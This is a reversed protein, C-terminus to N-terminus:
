FDTGSMEIKQGQPALRMALESFSSWTSGLLHPARGLLIADALGYLLQETSRDYRSRELWALRDGYHQRFVDYTEPLDAALFLTQAGGTALLVDIRTLFHAYHSKARWHAIAAHDEPLWNDAREYPLHEHAAGGQMRVHVAVDRPHRVSAVMARVREVPVLAKLAVNESDWTSAPHKVVFASRLYLDRGPALLVPADKVGGPEAAMYNVVELGRARADDLFREEIVAGPYDFLDNFRCDCHEDPQWVVVLERGAARAVAAASGIARLRNGLGHQADVFIRARPRQVIPTAAAARALGETSLTLLGDRGEAVHGSVLAEASVPDLNGLAEWTPVVPLELAGPSAGAPLDTRELRLVPALGLGRARAALRELGGWAGRAAIDSLLPTDLGIVLYHGSGAIVKGPASRAIEVDIASVDTDPRELVADLGARDLALVNRGLRWSLLERWAQQNAAEIMHGPVASPVWGERRLVLGFPARAEINFPLPISGHDWDPMSAAIFRNRRILFQTEGALRDRATIAGGGTGGDGLREADSHPLHHITGPAVNLRRVGAIVLRAYLDDDDWGYTTIHENFGGVKALSAREVLFFGNVHAQDPAADRWNGAILSGPALRNRAFFDDSLLIDADAKLITDFTAARFGLNFAYSLVWRPEGEVRLVRIRSDTMGAMALDEAVPRESSWDVILIEAIEALALWSPLARMLNDNRNMCCTVLTIGPAGGATIPGLPEAAPSKPTPDAAPVGNRGAVDGPRDEGRRGTRLAAVDLTRGVEELTQHLLAAQEARGGAAVEAEVARLEGRLTGDSGPWGRVVRDRQAADLGAGALAQALDPRVLALLALHLDLMTAGPVSRFLAIQDRILCLRPVLDPAAPPEAAMLDRYLDSLARNVAPNILSTMPKETVGQFV